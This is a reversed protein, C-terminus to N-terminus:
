LEYGQAIWYHWDEIAQRTEDDVKRTPKLQALPVALEKRGWRIRVFMEHECDEEAAMGIIEVEDGKELPSITRGKTCTALLPFHIKAELYYYWGMAQEEPTYADVIIDMTIREEREEDKKPTGKFSTAM